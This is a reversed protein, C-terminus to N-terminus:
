GEEIKFDQFFYDIHNDPTGLGLPLYPIYM